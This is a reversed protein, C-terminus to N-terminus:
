FYRIHRPSLVCDPVNELAEKCKWNRWEKRLRLLYILRGVKVGCYLPAMWGTVLMNTICACAATQKPEGFRGCQTRLAGHERLVWAATCPAWQMETELTESETIHRTLKFSTKSRGKDQGRDGKHIKFKLGTLDDCAQLYSKYFFPTTSLCGQSELWSQATLVWLRILVEHQSIIFHSIQVWILSRTKVLPM